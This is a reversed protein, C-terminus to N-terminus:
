NEAPQTVRQRGPNKESHSSDPNEQQTEIGLWASVMEAMEPSLSNESLLRLFHVEMEHNM